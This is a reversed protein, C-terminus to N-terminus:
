SAAAESLAKAKAEDNKLKNAIFAFLMVMIQCGALVLVYFTVTGDFYSNAIFSMLSGMAFGSAGYLASAAGARNEDGSVALALGNGQITAVNLAMLFQIILLVIFSLEFVFTVVLLIAALIGLSLASFQM